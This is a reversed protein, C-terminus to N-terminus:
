YEPHKKKSKPITFPLNEPNPARKKNKQPDSFGYEILKRRIDETTVEKKQTNKINEKKLKQWIEVIENKNVTKGQVLCMERVIELLRLIWPSRPTGVIKNKDLFNKYKKDEKKIIVSRFRSDNKIIVKDIEPKLEFNPIKLEKINKKIMIRFYKNLLEKQCKDILNNVYKVEDEPTLYDFDEVDSILFTIRQEITKKLGVSSARLYSQRKNLVDELEARPLIDIENEIDRLELGLRANLFEDKSQSIEDEIKVRQKLLKRMNLRRVLSDDVIKITITKM